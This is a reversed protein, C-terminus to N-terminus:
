DTLCSRQDISACNISFLKYIFNPGTLGHSFVYEEEGGDRSEREVGEVGGGEKGGLQNPARATWPAGWDKLPPCGPYFSRESITSFVM